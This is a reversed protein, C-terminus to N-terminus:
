VEMRKNMLLMGLVTSIFIIAPLFVICGSTYTSEGMTSYEVLTRNIYYQVSLKQIHQPYSYMYMNFTGGLFGITMLGLYGAAISVVVSKFLYFLLVGVTGSATCLLLLIGISAPINGWHVKYFLVSLSITIGSEVATALICPVAKGLYLSLKSAPSTLFRNEIRNKRENSIVVSLSVMGAWAFYVVEIIGYYDMSSPLPNVSLREATIYEKEQIQIEQLKQVSAPNELLYEQLIRVTQIGQTLSSLAGNLVMSEIKKDETRYIIMEKDTVALFIDTMGKELLDGYEARDYEELYIGNEKCSEIFNRFVEQFERREEEKEMLIAYGAKIKGIDENKGLMDEFVSALLAMVILPLATMFFFVWKNRFMLKFNNKILIWPM